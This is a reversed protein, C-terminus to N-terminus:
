IHHSALLGQDISHDHARQRKRAGSYGVAIQNYWDSLYDEM